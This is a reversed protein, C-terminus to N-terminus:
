KRRELIAKIAAKRTDLALALAGKRGYKTVSFRRSVIHGPRDSWVAEAFQYVSTRGNRTINQRRLGVGRNPDLLRETLRASSPKLARELRDRRAIAAKLSEAKGGLSFDGFYVQTIKAARTFRVLWGGTARDVKPNAKVRSINRLKHSRRSV